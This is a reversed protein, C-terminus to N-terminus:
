NVYGDCGGIMFLRSLETIQSRTNMVVNEEIDSVGTLSLSSSANLLATIVDPLEKDSNEKLAGIFERERGTFYKDFIAKLEEKSKLAVSNRLAGPKRMFTDLYHTIEVTAELFGEKKKHSCVKNGASYVVIESQYNKILVKRGVLYEPVSYFHNDVRVFSYKDVAQESVRALDLPPRYPKLHRKEEEFTSEDNMEILKEYLYAEADEFSDFSYRPAFVKNRIIKVSSEVHGKENGKFCNTVNVSFGYYLSMKILDENLLKESKGIFKTVVNKMNDYVVEGYAGGSMEFFRAHSDLFVDKKQNRYLYAWRFQARPSSLVALYYKAVLGGIVLRVEGFDYELRRGYEYEQKIFAEKKSDRKERIHDTITTLGIDHGAARILGHIQAGTLKQKHSGGLVADKADEGALIADLAKDIEPTYKLPTRKSTDYAPESVIREQVDRLEDTLGLKTLETQHGNWYKAVTKRHVGTMRQIEHNSHGEEKLKIITHKEIM